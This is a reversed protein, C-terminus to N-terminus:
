QKAPSKQKLGYQSKVASSANTLNDVKSILSKLMKEMRQTKVGPEIISDSADQSLTEHQKECNNFDEYPAFDSVPQMHIKDESEQSLKEALHEGTWYNEDSVAAEQVIEAALSKPPSNQYKEAVLPDEGQCRNFPLQTRIRTVQM